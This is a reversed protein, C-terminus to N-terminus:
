KKPDAGALHGTKLFKPMKEEDSPTEMAMQAVERARDKQILVIFLPCFFSHGLLQQWLFRQWM